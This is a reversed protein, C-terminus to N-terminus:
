KGEEKSPASNSRMEEPPIGEVVIHNDDSFWYKVTWGRATYEAAKDIARQAASSEGLIRACRRVIDEDAEKLTVKRRRAM